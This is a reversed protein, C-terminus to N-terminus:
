FQPNTSMCSLTQPDVECGRVDMDVSDITLEFGSMRWGSMRTLFLFPNSVMRFWAYRRLGTLQYVQYPGKETVVHYANILVTRGRVIHHVYIPVLSAKCESVKHVYNCHHSSTSSMGQTCTSSHCVVRRLCQVNAQWPTGHVAAPPSGESSCHLPPSGFRSHCRLCVVVLDYLSASALM